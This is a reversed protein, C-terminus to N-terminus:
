SAYLGILSANNTTSTKQLRDRQQVILQELRALNHEDARAAQEVCAQLLLDKQAMALTEGVQTILLEILTSRSVVPRYVYARRIKERKVLGRQCLKELTSQITNFKIGSDRAIYQYIDKASLSHHQWLTELIALEAQPMLPKLMAM